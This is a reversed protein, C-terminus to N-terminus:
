YTCSTKKILASPMIGHKCFSVSCLYIIAMQCYYACLLSLFYEVHHIYMFASDFMVSQVATPNELITLFAIPHLHMPHLNKCDCKGFLLFMTTTTSHLNLVAALVLAYQKSVLEHNIIFMNSLHLVLPIKKM